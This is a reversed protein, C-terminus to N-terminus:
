ADDREESLHSWGLFVKAMDKMGAEVEGRKMRLFAAKLATKDTTSVPGPHHPPLAVERAESGGRVSAAGAAETPAPTLGVECSGGANSAPAPGASAGFSKAVMDVADDLQDLMTQLVSPTWAYDSKRALNALLEVAKVAKPLRGDLMRDFDSRKEDFSKAM